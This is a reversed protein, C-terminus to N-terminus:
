AKESIELFFCVYIVMGFAWIDSAKTHTVISSETYSTPGPSEPGKLLCSQSSDETGTEQTLLEYAMWRASGRITNHSSTALITQSYSTMRSLGFDTIKPRGEGDVM